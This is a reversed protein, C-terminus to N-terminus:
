TRASGKSLEPHSPLISFRIFCVDGSKWKAPFLLLSDGFALNRSTLLWFKVAARNDAIKESEQEVSQRFIPGGGGNSASM